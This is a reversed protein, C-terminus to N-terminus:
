LVGLERDVFRQAQAICYDTIARTLMSHLQDADRLCLGDGEKCLKEILHNIRDREKGEIESMSAALTSALDDNDECEEVWQPVEPSELHAQKNAYRADDLVSQRLSAWKPLASM